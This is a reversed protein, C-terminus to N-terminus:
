KVVHCLFLLNKSQNPLRYIHKSKPHQIRQNSWPPSVRLVLSLRRLSSAIFFTLSTRQCQFQIWKCTNIEPPILKLRLHFFQYRRKPLSPCLLSEAWGCAAASLLRRHHSGETEPFLPWRLLTERQESAAAVSAILRKKQGLHFIAESRELLRLGFAGFWSQIFTWSM